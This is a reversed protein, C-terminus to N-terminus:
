VMDKLKIAEPELKESPAISTEQVNENDLEPKEQEMEVAIEESVPMESMGAEPMESMGAEPMEFVGAQRGGVEVVVTKRRGDAEHVVGVRRRTPSQADKRSRLALLYYALFALLLM